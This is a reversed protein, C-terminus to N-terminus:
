IFLQLWCATGQTSVRYFDVNGVIWIQQQSNTTYVYNIPPLLRSVGGGTEVKHSALSVPEQRYGWIQSLQMSGIMWSEWLEEGKRYLWRVQCTDGEGEATWLRRLGWLLHKVWCMYKIQKERRIREPTLHCDPRIEVTATLSIFAGRWPSYNQTHANQRAVFIGGGKKRRSCISTM